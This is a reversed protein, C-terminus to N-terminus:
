CRHAQTLLATFLSSGDGFAGFPADTPIGVGTASAGSELDRKVQPPPKLGPAGTARAITLSHCCNEVKVGFEHALYQGYDLEKTRFKAVSGVPCNGTPHREVARPFGQLGAVEAPIDPHPPFLDEMEPRPKKRAFTGPIATSAQAM